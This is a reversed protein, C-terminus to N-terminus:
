LARELAAQGALQGAPHRSIHAMSTVTARLMGLIVGFLTALRYEDLFPELFATALLGCLVALTGLAMAAVIPDPHRRWAKVGDTLSLAMAAAFMILGVLGIRLWLDLVINHAYAIQVVKRQGAEYYNFEVGLGWGIFVHQPILKGAEAALNLRDQASEVKGQSHFLGDFQQSLPVHVPQQNVAAPVFLVALSVGVVALSILVIQGARVSFRRVAGRWPGALLLVLLVGAVVAFNVLVARQNSLVIGTLIPVLALVHRPRVAGSALRVLFCVTGIALAIAATESGVAGFDVLPLGPLHTNFSIHAITMLDVLTICAVTLNGLRLLAGSDIYKRVPVGAALAYAGVIYLIDKAEYLDQTLPNHYLHGEIGGVFMWAAFTLWLAAPLGIRTPKGRAIMRAILALTIYIEPLRLQASGSGPHFLSRPLTNQDAYITAEVILLGLLVIPVLYDKGGREWRVFLAIIGVAVCLLILVELLKLM